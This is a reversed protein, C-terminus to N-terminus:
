ESFSFILWDCLSVLAKYRDVAIKARKYDDSDTIIYGDDLWKYSDFGNRRLSALGGDYIVFGDANCGFHYKTNDIMSTGLGKYGAGGLGAAHYLTPIIDKHSGPTKPKAQYQESIKDPTLLVFPVARKLLLESQAFPIGMGSTHDGTIGLVTNQLAGYEDLNSLFEGLQHNSYQYTTIQQYQTSSLPSENAALKLFSLSPKLDPLKSYSPVLNPSHNTTTFVVMFTPRQAEKLRDAVATFLHEDWVGWPGADVKFDLDYREVIEDRGFLERYNQLDLFQDLKRWNTEGGYYFATDYGQKAFLTASSTLFNLKQSTGQSLQKTNPRYPLNTLLGLISGASINDTPLFRQFLTGKDFYQKSKGLLDFNEDDQFRLLHTAFSEMVILVVHPKDETSIDPTFYQLPLKEFLTNGVLNSEPFFAELADDASKYGFDHATSLENESIRNWVTEALKEVGSESVSRVFFSQPFDQNLKVFAPTLSISCLVVTCLVHASFHWNFARDVQKQEPQKAIHLFTSVRFARLTVRYLLYMTALILSLYLILPHTKWASVLVAGIDDEVAGFALINFHSQFYSYYIQDAGLAIFIFSFVFTFYVTTRMLWSAWRKATRQRMWLLSLTTPLSVLLLIRFDHLVGFGFASPLANFFDTFVEPHAFQIAFILRFGSMILLLAAMLWWIRKIATLLANRPRILKSM